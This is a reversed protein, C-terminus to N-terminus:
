YVETSTQRGRGREVLCPFASHFTTGQRTGALSYDEGLRVSIKLIENNFIRKDEEGNMSCVHLERFGQAKLRVLASSEHERYFEENYVDQSVFLLALEDHMSNKNLLASMTYNFALLNMRFVIDKTRILALKVLSVVLSFHGMEIVVEGNTENIKSKHTIDHWTIKGDRAETGHLIVVNERQFNKTRLKTTLTVPKKIYHGSPQLNIIPMAFMVENELNKQIILDYYKSPDELTIDVSVPNEIAGPPCVLKVDKGVVVGGESTIISSSVNDDTWPSNDNISARLDGEPLSVFNFMKHKNSASFM